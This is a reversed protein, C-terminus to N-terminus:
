RSVKRAKRIIALTQNDFANPFYRSLYRRLRKELVDLPENWENVLWEVLFAEEEKSYTSDAYYFKARAVTPMWSISYEKERLDLKHFKLTKIKKYYGNTFKYSIKSQYDERITMDFMFKSQIDGLVSSNNKRDEEYLRKAEKYSLDDIWEESERKMNIAAHYYLDADKISGLQCFVKGKDDEIVVVRTSLNLKYNDDRFMWSQVYKPNYMSNNYRHAGNALMINPFLNPEIHGTEEQSRGNVLMVWWIDFFITKNQYRTIVRPHMTSKESEIAAYIDQQLEVHSEVDLSLQQNNDKEANDQVDVEIEETTNADNVNHPSPVKEPLDRAKMILDSKDYKAIQTKLVALCTERSATDINLTMVAELLHCLQTKEDRVLTELTTTAADLMVPMGCKVPDIGVRETLRYYKLEKIAALAEINIVSSNITDIAEKGIALIFKRNALYNFQKIIEADNHVLSWILKAFCSKGKLQPVENWRKNLSIDYLIKAIQGKGLLRFRMLTQYFTTLDTDVGAEAIGKRKPVFTWNTGQRGKHNIVSVTKELDIGVEGKQTKGKSYLCVDDEEDLYRFSNVKPLAKSLEEVTEVGKKGPLFPVNDVFSDGPQLHKAIQEIAPKNPDFPLMDKDLDFDKLLNYFVSGIAGDQRILGPHKNITPPLTKVREPSGSSGAFHGILHPLQHANGSIKEPYYTFNNLLIEQLCEEFLAFSSQLKKAIGSFDKEKVQSLPINFRTKFNKAALTAEIDEHKDIEKMAYQNIREVYARVGENTIGTVFYDVCIELVSSLIFSRQSTEQCVSSFSFPKTSIGDKSRGFDSGVMKPKLHRFLVGIYTHLMQLTLVTTEDSLKLIVTNYFEMMHKQKDPNKQHVETLYDLTTTEDLPFKYHHFAAKALNRLYSEFTKADLRPLMNRKLAMSLDKLLPNEMMEQVLKLASAYFNKDLVIAEGISYNYDKSPDFIKDIEDSYVSLVDKRLRLLEQLSNILPKLENLSEKETSRLANVLETLTHSLSIAAQPTQDVRGRHKLANLHYVIMLKIATIDHPSNRNYVFPYATSGLAHNNIHAYEKHHMGMLPSYTVVGGIYGKSSEIASILNRLFTTKGGAMAEHIYSEPHAILKHVHDLQSFRGTMNLEDEFLMLVNAFPHKDRDYQCWEQLVKACEDRLVENKPDKILRQVYERKRSIAQRDTRATEYAHIAKTLEQVDEKSIAGIEHLASFESIGYCHRAKEFLQHFYTQQEKLRREIAVSPSLDIPKFFKLIAQRLQVEKEQYQKEHTELLKKLETLSEKEDITFSQDVKSAYGLTDNAVGLGMEDALSDGKFIDKLETTLKQVRESTKKHTDNDKIPKLWNSIDFLPVPSYPPIPKQDEKYTPKAKLRAIQRDLSWQLVKEAKYGNKSFYERMDETVFPSKEDSTLKSKLWEEARPALFKIEEIEHATLHMLPDAFNANSQYKEAIHLLNSLIASDFELLAKETPYASEFLHHEGLLFKAKFALANSNDNNWSLIWQRIQPRMPDTVSWVVQSQHLFHLAKGYKGQIYMLYALFLYDRPQKSKLIGQADIDFVAFGQKDWPAKTTEVPNYAFSHKVEKETVSSQRTFARYPIVLKAKGEENELLHYNKFGTAFFRVDNEVQSTMHPLLNQISKDSLYYGQHVTSEWRKKRTNWVYQSEGRIYSVTTGQKEKTVVYSDPFDLRSFLSTEKPSLVLVKGNETQRELKVLKSGRFHPVYLLSGTPDELRYSGNNAWLFGRRYDIPLSDIENELRIWQEWTEGDKQRYLLPMQPHERNLYLSYNLNGSQISVHWANGFPTKVYSFTHCKKINNEGFLACLSEDDQIESPLLGELNGGQVLKFENLNLYLEDSQYVGREPNQWERKPTDKYRASLIQDLLQTGEKEIKIIIQTMFRHCFDFLIPGHLPSAAQRTEIHSRVIFLSQAISIFDEEKYGLIAKNYIYALHLDANEGSLKLLTLLKESHKSHMQLREEAPFKSALLTACIDVHVRYLFLWTQFNKAKECRELMKDLCNLCRLASHPNDKLERLFSDFQFLCSRLVQQYDKGFEAQLLLNVHKEFTYLANSARNDLGSAMEQLDRSEDIDTNPFTFKDDQIKSQTQNLGHIHRTHNDRHQTIKINHRYDAMHNYRSCGNEEQEPHIDTTVMGEVLRTRIDQNGIPNFLSYYHVSTPSGFSDFVNQSLFNGQPYITRHMEFSYFSFGDVVNSKGTEVRIITKNAVDALAQSKLKLRMTELKSKFQERNNCIAGDYLYFHPSVFCATLNLLHNLPFDFPSQIGEHRSRFKYPSKAKIEQVKNNLTSHYPGLDFYPDNLAKIFLESMDGTDTLLPREGDYLDWLISIANLLGLFRSPHASIRGRAYNLTILLTSIECLQKTKQERETASLKSLENGPSLALLFHSVESELLDLSKVGAEYQDFLYTHWADLTHFGTELPASASTAKQIESFQFTKVGPYAVEKTRQVNDLQFTTNKLNELKLHELGDDNLVDAQIKQLTALAELWSLDTANIESLNRNLYVVSSAVWSRLDSDKKWEPNEALVKSLLGIQYIKKGARYSDTKDTKTWQHFLSPINTPLDIPIQPIPLYYKHAKQCAMLYESFHEVSIGCGKPLRVFHYTQENPVFFTFDKNCATDKEWETFESVIAEINGSGNDFVKQIEWMRKFDKKLESGEAAAIYCEELFRTFSKNEGIREALAPSYNKFLRMAYSLTCNEQAKKEALYKQRKLSFFSYLGYGISGVLLLGAGALFINPAVFVLPYLEWSSGLSAALMAFSSAVIRGINKLKDIPLQALVFSKVLAIKEFPIIQDCIEKFEGIKNSIDQIPKNILQYLEDFSTLRKIDSFYPM